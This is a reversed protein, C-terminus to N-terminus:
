GFEEKRGLKDLKNDYIYCSAVDKTKIKPCENLKNRISYPDMKRIDKDSWKRTTNKGARHLFFTLSDPVYTFVCLFLIKKDFERINNATCVNEFSHMITEKEANKKKQSRGREQSSGNEGGEEEEAGNGM